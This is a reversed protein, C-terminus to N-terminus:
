AQAWVTQNVVNIEEVLPSYGVRTWVPYLCLRESPGATCEPVLGSNTKAQVSPRTGARWWQERLTVSHEM